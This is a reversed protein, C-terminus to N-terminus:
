IRIDVHRHKRKARPSARRNEAPTRNHKDEPAHRRKDIDIIAAADQKPNGDVESHADDGHPSRGKRNQRRRQKRDKRQRQTAPVGAVRKTGSIM